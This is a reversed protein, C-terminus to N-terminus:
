ERTTGQEAGGEETERGSLVEPALLLTASSLSTSAPFSPAPLLAASPSGPRGQARQTTALSATPRTGASTYYPLSLTRLLVLPLCTPRPTPYILSLTHSTPGVPLLQYPTHFILSSPHPFVLIPQLINGVLYFHQLIVLAFLRISGGNM